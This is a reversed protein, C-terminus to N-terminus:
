CWAGKCLQRSRQKREITGLNINAKEQERGQYIRKGVPSGLIWWVKTAMNGSHIM